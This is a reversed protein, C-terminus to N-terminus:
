DLHFYAKLGKKLSAVNQFGFKKSLTHAIAKSKRGNNCCFIIPLETNIENKRKVVENLPINKGGANYEEYEYNERVDILEFVEKNKLLNEFESITIERM